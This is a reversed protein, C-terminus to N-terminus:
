QTLRPLGGCEPYRDPTARLDYGCSLCRGQLLLRDRRHRVYWWLAPLLALPVIVLVFNVSWQEM